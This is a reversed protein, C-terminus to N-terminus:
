FRELENVQTLPLFVRRAESAEARAPAVMLSNM